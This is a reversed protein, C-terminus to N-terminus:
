AHRPVRLFDILATFYRQQDDWMALHSGIPSIFLRAHPILDAERRISAPNMEDYRAGMVLVPTDIRSLDRWRDWGTLNGSVVFENAGQMRNYINMNAKAFTRQLPEPFPQVRCVHRPYLEAAVIASYEESERQGTKELTELKKLVPAPLQNKLQKTYATYDAMSATMNSIVAARLHKAFPALAYEITLVGGWSHGLLVFRELGLAARVQEVEDVYRGLNWLREDDPHDSFGCGLQDYFYIEIGAPPLYQTFCEMYDHSFGPGGHLLLVKIPGSGVRRTWVKYGERLNIWQVGDEQPTHAFAPVFAFSGVSGAIFNRRSLNMTQGHTLIASGGKMQSQMVVATNMLALM